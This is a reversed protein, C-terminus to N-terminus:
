AVAPTKLAPVALNPNPYTLKMGEMTEILLRTVVWGRGRPPKLQVVRLRPPTRRNSPDPM